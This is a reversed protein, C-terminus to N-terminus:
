GREELLARVAAFVRNAAERSVGERLTGCAITERRGGELYLVVEWRERGEPEEPPTPDPLTWGSRQCAALVAGNLLLRAGRIEGRRVSRGSWHFGEADALFLAVAEGQPLEAVVRRGLREEERRAQERQVKAWRLGMAFRFMVWLGALLALAAAIQLLM